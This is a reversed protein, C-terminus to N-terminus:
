IVKGGYVPNLVVVGGTKGNGAPTVTAYIAGSEVVAAQEVWGGVPVAWKQQGTEADVAFFMGKNDGVYVIGGVSAPASPGGGTPFSWAPTGNETDLARLQGDGTTVYVHDDDAAPPSLPKGPDVDWDEQDGMLRDERMVIRGDSTAFFIRDDGVAPPPLVPEHEIRWLWKADFPSFASVGGGDPLVILTSHVQNVKGGNRQGLDVDDETGTRADLAHLDGKPDSAFVKGAIAAVTSEPRGAFDWVQQGTEADIAYLRDGVVFVMGEYHVPAGGLAHKAAFRWREKGTAVDIAFVTGDQAGVYVVGQEVTPATTFRVGKVSFFWDVHEEAAAVAGGAGGPGDSPSDGGCGATVLVSLVLATGWICRRRDRGFVSGGEICRCIRDAHIGHRDSCCPRSNVAQERCTPPAPTRTPPSGSTPGSPSRCSSCPVSRSLPASTSGPPSVAAPAPRTWCPRPSSSSRPRTCSQGSRDAGSGCRGATSSRRPLLGVILGTVGATFLQACINEAILVGTGPARGMADRLLSTGIWGAVSLALLLSAGLSVAHAEDRPRLGRPVVAPFALILGYVYGPALDCARSIVGLCVAAFLAGPMLTPFARIRSVRRRYLEASFSYALVSLGVAAVVGPLLVAARADLGLGPEVALAFLTSLLLFGIVHLSPRRPAGRSRRGGPHFARWIRTRNEEITRNLLDAPFAVLPLAVLSAGAVVAVRASDDFVDRVSPLAAASNPREADLSARPPSPAAPAGPAQAPSPSTAPAPLAPPSPSPRAAAPDQVDLVAALATRTDVVDGGQEECAVEVDLPGPRSTTPVLLEVYTHEPRRATSDPAAVGATFRYWEHGDLTVHAHNSSNSFGCTIDAWIRATDGPKATKPAVILNRATLEAPRDARTSVEAVRTAAFDVHLPRGALSTGTTTTDDPGECRVDLTNIPETTEIADNLNDAGSDYRVRPARIATTFAGTAPDVPVGIAVVSRSYTWGVAGSRSEVYLALTNAPCSTFGTGTVTVPDGERVREPSVSVEPAAVARPATVLQVTTIGAAAVVVTLLGSVWRM